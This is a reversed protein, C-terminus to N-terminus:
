ECVEPAAKYFEILQVTGEITTKPGSEGGIEYPTGKAKWYDFGTTEDGFACHSFWNELESKRVFIIVLEIILLAVGLWLGLTMYLLRRALIGAVARGAAGGLAELGILRSCFTISSLANATVSAIGVVAKINYLYNEAVQGKARANGASEFDNVVSLVGAGLAFVGGWLKYYQFGTSTPGMAVRVKLAAVEMRWVGISCLTAALARNRTGTNKSLNWGGDAVLIKVLNFTEFLGCAGLIRMERIPACARDTTLGSTNKLKQWADERAQQLRELNEATPDNKYKFSADIVPRRATSELRRARVRAAAQDEAKRIENKVDRDVKLMGDITTQDVFARTLVFKYLVKEGVTEFTKEWFTSKKCLAEGISQMLDNMAFNIPKFKAPNATNINVISQARRYFDALSKPIKVISGLNRQEIPGIMPTPDKADQLVTALDPIRSVSNMVLARGIINDMGSELEGIWADLAEAGIKSANLGRIGEEIVAEYCLGEPIDEAQYDELTSLFSVSKLWDLLVKARQEAIEKARAIVAKQNKKFEELRSTELQQEYDPWNTNYFHDTNFEKSLEPDNEIYSAPLEMEGLYDYIEGNPDEVLYFGDNKNGRWVTGRRRPEIETWKSAAPIRGSNLLANFDSELINRRGVKVLCLERVSEICDIAELEFSREKQYMTYHALPTGYALNLEHVMGIADDLALIVGPHGDVGHKSMRRVEFDNSDRLWNPRYNTFFLRWHSDRISGNKESLQANETWVHSYLLSRHNLKESYECISEFAESSVSVMGSGHIADKGKQANLKKPSIAKMRKARLAGDEAYRRMTAFTWPHQSFAIWAEDCQDPNPIVFFRPSSHPYEGRSCTKEDVAKVPEGPQTASSARVLTGSENVTYCEWNVLQGEINIPAPYHIYIYGARLIRLGYKMDPGSAIDLGSGAAWSPMDVPFREDATDAFASDNVASDPAM